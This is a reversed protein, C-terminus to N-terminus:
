SFAAEAAGAFTEMEDSNRAQVRIFGAPMGPVPDCNFVRIRFPKLGQIFADMAAPNKLGCCLFGPGATVRDPDFAACRRLTHGCHTLLTELAPLTQRYEEVAALMAEGLALSFPTPSHAPLLAAIRALLRAEGTLYGLRIGPAAFFHSFSHLTFLSVGQRLHGAYGKFSHQFYDETPYLFERFSHDVLVRPSRLMRFVTHFNPYVAGTPNNPATIVVLDARTEWLSQLGGQGIGFDDEVTLGLLEFGIGLTQCARLYESDTPGVFLVHRPALSFLLPWFLSYVGNGVLINEPGLGEHRGLAAQLRSPSSTFCDLSLPVRAALASTLEAALYNCTSRLDLMAQSEPPANGSLDSHPSPPRGPRYPPSPTSMPILYQIQGTLDLAPYPPLNATEYRTQM